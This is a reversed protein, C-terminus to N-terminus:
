NGGPGSNTVYYYVAFAAIGLAGVAVIVQWNAADEVDNAIRQIFNWDDELDEVINKATQTRLHIYEGITM